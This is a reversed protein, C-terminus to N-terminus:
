ADVHQSGGDPGLVLDRDRDPVHDLPVPALAEIFQAGSETRVAHEVGRNIVAWDGPRLTRTEGAVNLELEGETVIMVQETHEHSHMDVGFGPDYNVRCVLAQEGGAAHINVGRRFEWADVGNWTGFPSDPM